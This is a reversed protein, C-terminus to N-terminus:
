HTVSALFTDRFKEMQTPNVDSVAWFVMGDHIWPLLYYGQRTLYASPPQKKGGSLPTIFLNITHQRHRYVLVAIPRHDLYDLRGGLLPFGETTLDSVPPSFDLKGNFWPKVTHQDSSAVDTLHAVQLSRVHNAVLEEVLRDTASPLMLYLIGSWAVAIVCALVVGRNLWSWSPAKAPSKHASAAPRAATIRDVLHKPAKFYAADNKLAARLKTYEAYEGQCRACGSCHREIELSDRLSLERDFHASLLAQSEKCEM